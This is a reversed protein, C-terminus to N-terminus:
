WRLLRPGLLAGALTCFAITGGYWLAVFPVSDDMCHLAYGMASIGGAALGVLAGTRVLDTPAAFRRVAWVLVAFPLVGIIPISVLCELWMHGVLMRDWHSSPASALSLGALLMVGFFPAAAVWARIRTEGGPRAVKTLLWGALVVIGAGFAVKLLLFGLVGPHHLDPRVGLLLLAVCLAAGAGLAAALGLGRKLRRHDTPEINSSLMEILENTRM